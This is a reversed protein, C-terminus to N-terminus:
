LPYLCQAEAPRKFFFRQSHVGRAHEAVVRQSLVLNHFVEGDATSQSEIGAFPAQPHYTSSTLTPVEGRYFFAPFCYLVALAEKV